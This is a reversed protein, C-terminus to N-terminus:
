EELFRYHKLWNIQQILLMLFMAGMFSWVTQDLNTLSTMLAVLGSGMVGGLSCRFSEWYRFDEFTSAPYKNVVWVDWGIGMLPGVVSYAIGLIVEAWLFLHVDYFYLLLSSAYIVNLCITMLYLNRIRAGKFLPLILGSVRVCILYLSIYATSWYVGQLKHVIPVSLAWVLSAVFGVWLQWRLFSDFGQYSRLLYRM